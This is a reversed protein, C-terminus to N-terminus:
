TLLINFLGNCLPKWENPTLQGFSNIIRKYLQNFENIQLKIISFDSVFDVSISWVFQVVLLKICKFDSRDRTRDVLRISSAM